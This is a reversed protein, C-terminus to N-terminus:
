KISESYSVTNDKAIVLEKAPKNTGEDKKTNCVPVAGAIGMGFSALLILLTLLFLNSYKKM